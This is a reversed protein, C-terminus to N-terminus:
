KIIELVQQKKQAHELHQLAKENGPDLILVTRWNDIAAELNNRIYMEVGKRDYDEALLVISERYKALAAMADAQNADMDLIYRWKKVADVQQGGEWDKQALELLEQTLDEMKSKTIKLYQAVRQNGPDLGLIKKWMNLAEQYRNKQLSQLGKQFYDEILKQNKSNAVSLKEESLRRNATALLQRITSDRPILELAKSWEVLATLYDQAKFAKHGKSVFVDAQQRKQNEETLKLKRNLEKDQNNLSFAKAYFTTAKAYDGAAFAQDGEHILSDFIKKQKAKVQNELKELIKQEEWMSRGFPLTIGIKHVDGLGPFPTYAYDLSYESIQLGIGLTLGSLPGLDNGYQYYRYGARLWLLDELVMGEMGFKFLMEQYVPKYIDFSLQMRKRWLSYAAGAEAGLNLAYSEELLKMPMGINRIVLGLQLDPLLDAIMLGLDAALSWGSYVDIMQYVNKLAIGASYRADFAHSYALSLYLDYDMFDGIADGEANYKEIPESYGAFVNVGFTDSASWPLCFALYEHRFGQLYQAHSVALEVRSARSLGGPNWFVAQSNDARAVYAGALAAPRAGVPEDLFVAGVSEEAALVPELSGMFGAMFALGIVFLLGRGKEWLLPATRALFSVDIM